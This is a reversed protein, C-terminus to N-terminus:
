PSVLNPKGALRRDERCWASPNLPVGKRRIAFYLGPEGPGGTDGAIAIPDGPDVWDGTEKLLSQNHGYLSMFGDGHEIILLLGQGRLWDAFAVRGHYVARVTDGPAASILVGQWKLTGHSRPEGFSFRLPGRVPWPLKGKLSAFPTHQDLSGPIDAFMDRLADLLRQLQKENESLRQLERGGQTIEQRLRALVEQRNDHEAQLEKRRESKREQLQTLANTELRIADELHALRELRQQLAHIRAARAKSFYGHYTLARGLTAPDEQNLLIKLYDQRGMMYTARVQAALATRQSTLGQIVRRKETRLETLRKAKADLSREIDRLEAALRGSRVETTRLQEELGSRTSRAESLRQRLAGMRERLRQLEAAKQEQTGARSAQMLPAAGLGLWLLVPGLLLLKFRSRLPHTLV